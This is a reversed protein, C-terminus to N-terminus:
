AAQAADIFPFGHKASNFTIDGLQLRIRYREQDGHGVGPAHDEEAEYQMLAGM